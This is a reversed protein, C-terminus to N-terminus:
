ADFYGGQELQTAIPKPVEVNVGRQVQYIYGNICVSAYNLANKDKLLPLRISVKPQQDLLKKVAKCENIFKKRDFPEEKVTEVSKKESSM